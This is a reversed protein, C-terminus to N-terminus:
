VLLREAGLIRLRDYCRPCFIALDERPEEGGLNVSVSEACKPCNGAVSALAVTKRSRIMGFPIAGLLFSPVLVFHLGPLFVSLAALLVFLLSGFIGRRIRDARSYRHATLNGAGRRDGSAVWEATLSETTM